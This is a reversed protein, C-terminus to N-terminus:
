VSSYVYTKETKSIEFLLTFLVLALNFCYIFVQTPTSAPSPVGSPDYVLPVM